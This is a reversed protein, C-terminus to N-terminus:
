GLADAVENFIADADDHDIDLADAIDYFTEDEDDNYDGDSLLVASVVSLGLARLEDNFLNEALADVRADYGQEGLADLSAQMLERIDRMSAEGQAFGQIVDAVVDLEDNTLEGDSCAAVIGADVLGALARGALEVERRRVSKMSRRRLM